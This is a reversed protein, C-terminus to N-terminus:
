RLIRFLQFQEGTQLLQLKEPIPNAQNESGLVYLYDYFEGWDQWYIRGDPSATSPSAPSTLLDSISLPRDNYGGVRDRYPTNVVLVQQGPASFVLSELSSREIVALCPMSEVANVSWLDGSRAILIKSGPEIHPFSSEIEASYHAYREWTEFVTGIRLLVLGFLAALFVRQARQTSLRCDLFGIALLAFGVPLRVDILSGGFAETPMALYVPVALGALWWAVPHIRLWQRRWAWFAGLAIFAVVVLDSARSYTEFIWRVGRVKESLYCRLPEAICGSGVWHVTGVHEATPGFAMLLPAVAFPLAFVAINVLTQRRNERWVGINTYIEIALVGLGYLGLAALHCFFTAIVFCLSIAARLLPRGERMLIWVAVGLLAVGIGFLYNVLGYVMVPNYIILAAILPSTSWRRNVAFHIAQVGSLLLGILALLFLKGATFIGVIKAVPPIILDMALNPIIKWQIAYFQSLLQDTDVEAIVYGRALHNLYDFLPPIKLALVPVALLAWFTIFCAIVFPLGQSTQEAGLLRQLFALLHSEQEARRQKGSSM